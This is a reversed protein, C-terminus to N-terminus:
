PTSWRGGRGQQIGQPDSQSFGMCDGYGQGFGGGMGRASMFDAQEQTLSGDEVAQQMMSSRAEQMIAAFEEWTFGESEAIQWMTEGGTLRAELQDVELGLAEAFASEMIDHYPGEEGDVMGGHIGGRGGMMGTGYGSGTYPQPNNTQAYVLSATGLLLVVLGVLSAIKWIKNM